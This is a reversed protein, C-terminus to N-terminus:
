WCRLEMYGPVAEQKKKMLIESKFQILSLISQLQVSSPSSSSLILFDFYKLSTIIKVFCVTEYGKKHKIISKIFQGILKQINTSLDLLHKWISKVATKVLKNSIRRIKITQWLKLKEEKQKLRWDIIQQELSIFLPSPLVTM